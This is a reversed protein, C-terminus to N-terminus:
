AAGSGLATVFVMWLQLVHTVLLLGLSLHMALTVAQCYKLVRRKEYRDAVAGGIVGFVLAPLMRVALILGVMLGSKTLQYVLLPRVVQEIWLSASHGLQGLWLYRYDHYRLARFTGAEAAPVPQAIPVAMDASLGGSGITGQETLSRIRRRHERSTA